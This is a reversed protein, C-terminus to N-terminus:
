MKPHYSTGRHSHFLICWGFNNPLGDHGSANYFIAFFGYDALLLMSSKPAFNSCWSTPFNSLKREMPLLIDM